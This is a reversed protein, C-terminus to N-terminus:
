PMMNCKTPCRCSSAAAAAMTSCQNHTHTGQTAPQVTRWSGRGASVRRRMEPVEGRTRSAGETYICAKVGQGEGLVVKVLPLQLLDLVRAQGHEGEQTLRWSAFKSGHHLWPAHESHPAPLAVPQVSGGGGGSRSSSNRQLGELAQPGAGRGQGDVRAPKTAWCLACGPLGRSCSDAWRASGQFFWKMLLPTERGKRVSRHTKLAGAAQGASSNTM